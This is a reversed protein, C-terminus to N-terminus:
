ATREIKVEKIVYQSADTKGKVPQVKKGAIQDAFVELCTVMHGMGAGAKGLKKQGEETAGWKAYAIMAANADYLEQNM